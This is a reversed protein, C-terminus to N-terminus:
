WSTGPGQPNRVKAKAEAKAEGCRTVGQSKSRSSLCFVAVEMDNVGNGPIVVVSM